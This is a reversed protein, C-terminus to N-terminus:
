CCNESRPVFLILVLQLQPIPDGRRGGRPNCSLRIAVEGAARRLALM